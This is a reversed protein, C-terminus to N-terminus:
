EASPLSGRLRNERVRQGAPHPEHRGGRTRGFEKTVAMDVPNRRRELLGFAEVLLDTLTVHQQRASEVLDKKFAPSVRVHLLETLRPDPEEVEAELFAVIADRMTAQRGSCVAKFRAHLEASIEIALHVLGARRGRATRGNGIDKAYAGLPM